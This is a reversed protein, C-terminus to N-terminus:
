MKLLEERQKPSIQLGYRVNEQFSLEKDNKIKRYEKLMRICKFTHYFCGLEDETYGIKMLGYALSKFVKSPIIDGNNLALESLITTTELNANRELIYSDTDQYYLRLSRNKSPNTLINPTLLKVLLKYAEKVLKNPSEEQGRSILYQYAHEIEHIIPYLKLYDELNTAKNIAFSQKIDNNNFQVWKNIYETSLFITNYKIAYQGKQQNNLFYKTKLNNHEDRPILKELIYILTYYDLEKGSINSFISQLTQLDEKNKVIHSM